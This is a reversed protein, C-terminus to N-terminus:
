IEYCNDAGFLEAVRAAKAASTPGLDIVALRNKARSCCVYFLNRTRRFRDPNGDRDALSLYKEFSYKTWRAGKDDLVVYVTDFETGKVGHKTSFPTHDRFFEAFAAIEGYPLGLLSSYFAGDREQREQNEPGGPPPAVGALRDRLDDPLEALRTEALHTLVERVTASERLLMLRDLAARVAPKGGRGSLEFGCQRLLTVTRGANGGKWAYAVPEVRDLFFAIRHDEGSLLRDRTFDGRKAYADLLAGYGGKAAILRHTLHLEKETGGDPPWGLERAAFERARALPRDEPRGVRVYVARGAPNGDAPFQSIDTRLRNLLGIVAISCRRNDGKVVRELLSAARDPLEGVGSDYINQFKDGFLGVVAKGPNREAIALLIDIVRPSADQYEDILIFPFQAAVLGPLLPNDAFAFAAVDILDDHFLRGEMFDSGRDSYTVAVRGLALALGDGDKKRASGEALAANAKAVARKLAKQHGQLVSWLFDHITSVRILPGDGVRGVIEDRAAKTYTICAIRQGAAALAAGASERAYRLALALSHTKGAGAGADLVFGRRGDICARIRDDAETM